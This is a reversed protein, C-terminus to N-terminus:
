GLREVSVVPTGASRCRVWTGDGPMNKTLREGGLLPSEDAGGGSLAALEAESGAVVYFVSDTGHNVLEVMRTPTTIEFTFDTDAVLQGTAVSAASQDAAM